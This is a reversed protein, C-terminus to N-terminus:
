PSGVPPDPGDDFQLPPRKARNRIWDISRRVRPRRAIRRELRRKGPFDVLAIGLLITLVGQGPLVLMAIGMLVLVVGLLNKGIRLLLRAAAPVGTGLDDPPRPGVFYDAPIRALLVPVLALTGFFSATSIGVMVTILLQHEGLWAEIWEM